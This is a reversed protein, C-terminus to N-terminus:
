FASNQSIPCMALTPVATTYPDFITMDWGYGRNQPTLYPSMSVPCRILMWFDRMSISKSVIANMYEFPFPVSICKLEPCVSVTLSLGSATAVRFAVHCFHGPPM